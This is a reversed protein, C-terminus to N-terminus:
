RGKQTRGSAKNGQGARKSRTRIAENALARTRPSMNARQKKTLKSFERALNEKARSSISGRKKKGAGM